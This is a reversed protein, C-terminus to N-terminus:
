RPPFPFHVKYSPPMNGQSSSTFAKAHMMVTGRPIRKQAVASVSAWGGAYPELGRREWLVDHANSM